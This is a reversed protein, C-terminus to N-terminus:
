QGESLNTFEKDTEESWNTWHDNFGELWTRYQTREPTDFRPAAFAFRLANHRYPWLPVKDPRTRHGDFLLSDNATTIRRIWVTEATSSDLSAATDLRILGHAQGVWVPGGAEAVMVYADRLTTRRLATPVFTYGGNDSPLAVGSADGASIWVRGQEDETLDNISRTGQPLFADFTTDSVFGVSGSGTHMRFLGDGVDSLFTVRGALARAHVWGTPLGHEVGFRTLVPEDATAAEVRLVGDSRTGMWLRGQADEIISRVRERVGDLRGADRWRGARLRMRALGETLGLYLLTTDGRTRYVEHVHGGSLPWILQQDDLNYLGGLCGALLGQPTSLLSWCERSIGPYPMFRAGEAASVLSYVGLSTAAYLRGRHRAVSNVAGALGTTKDFYTVPAAVAFFAEAEHLPSIPTREM